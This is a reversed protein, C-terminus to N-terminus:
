YFGKILWPIWPLVRFYKWLANIKGHEETSETAIIETKILNFGYHTGPWSKLLHWETFIKIKGTSSKNSVTWSGSHPGTGGQEERTQHTKGVPASLQSRGLLNGPLGPLLSV